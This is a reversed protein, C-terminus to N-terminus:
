GGMALPDRAGVSGDRMLMAKAVRDDDMLDGDPDYDAEPTSTDRAREHRALEAVRPATLLFAIMEERDGAAAVHDGGPRSAVRALLASDTLESVKAVTEDKALAMKRAQASDAEMQPLPTLRVGATNLVRFAPDKLFVAAHSRPMETPRNASLAYAVGERVEHTREAQRANNDFVTWTEETADKM